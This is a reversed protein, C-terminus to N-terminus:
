RGGFPGLDDLSGSFLGGAGDDPQGQGGDGGGGFVGGGGFGLFGAGSAVPNSFTTGFPTFEERDDDDGGSLEMGPLRPV